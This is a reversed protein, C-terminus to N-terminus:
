DFDDLRDTFATAQGTEMSPTADYQGIANEWKQYDTPGLEGSSQMDNVKQKFDDWCDYKENQHSMVRDQLMDQFKDSNPSHGQEILGTREREIIADLKQNKAQNWAQNIKDDINKLGNQELFDQRSQSQIDDLHTNGRKPLGQQKDYELWAEKTEVDPGVQRKGFDEPTVGNQLQDAMEEASRVKADAPGEPTQKVMEAVDSMDDNFRKIGSSPMDTSDLNVRNAANPDLKIISEQLSSLKKSADTLDMGLEQKCLSNAEGVTRRNMVVDDMLTAARKLDTPIRSDHADALHKTIRQYDKIGGRCTEELKDAANLHDLESPKHQTIRNALEGDAPDWNKVNDPDLHTKPDMGPKLKYAEPDAPHMYHIEQKQRNFNLKQCAEDIASNMTAPKVRNGDADYIVRREFMDVDVGPGKSSPGSGTAFDDVTVPRKVGNEIVYAGQNNLQDATERFLPKTRNEWVDHAYQKQIDPPADKMQLKSQRNEVIELTAKKVEDPTVGQRQTQHWSAVKKAGELQNAKAQNHLAADDADMSPKRSFGPLDTDADGSASMRSSYQGPLNGRRYQDILNNVSKATGGVGTGDMVLNTSAQYAKLNAMSAKQQWNVSADHIQNLQNTTNQLRDRVGAAQQRLAAEAEADGRDRAANIQNRLDKLDNLARDHEHYLHPAADMQQQLRNRADVAKQLASTVDSLDPAVMTRIMHYPVSAVESVVDKGKWNQYKQETAQTRQERDNVRNTLDDKQRQIQSVQNMAEQKRKQWQDALWKDGSEAAKTHQQSVRKYEDIADREAKDLQDYRNEMNQTSPEYTWLGSTKLDIRSADGTEDPVDIRNIDPPPKRWSQSDPDFVFGDRQMRQQHLIDKHVWQGKDPDWDHDPSPRNILSWEPRDQKDVNRPDTGAENWFRNQTADRQRRAELEERIREMAEERTLWETSDGVDWRYRGDDRQELPNGNEDLLIDTSGPDFDPPLNRSLDNLGWYISLGLGSSLAPGVGLLIAQDRGSSAWWSDFTGKSTGDMYGGDHAWVLDLGMLPCVMLLIGLILLMTSAPPKRAGSIFALVLAAILATIGIATGEPTLVSNAIFGISSSFITVYGSALGFQVTNDKRMVNLLSTWVSRFLLATITGTRSALLAGVGLAMFLSAHGQVLSGIALAIGFGGLAMALADMGATSFYHMISSLRESLGPGKRKGFVGKLLGFFLMPTVTWIVAISVPSSSISLYPSAWSTKSFGNNIVVLLYTHLALALGIFLLTLPLRKFFMKLTNLLVLILLPLFGEPLNTTQQKGSETQAKPTPEPQWQDNNWRLWNGTDADIQHWIGQEDQYRLQNVQAHFQDITLMGHTHARKLATYRQLIEQTNM